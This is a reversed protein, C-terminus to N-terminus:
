CDGPDLQNPGRDEHCYEKESSPISMAIDFYMFTESSTSLTGSNLVSTQLM